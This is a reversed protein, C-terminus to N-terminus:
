EDLLNANRLKEIFELIDEQAEERSVEFADTVATVITSLDSGSALCEWIVKSVPNLLIMGNLELATQGVPIAVIDEALQRVIFEGRLKM